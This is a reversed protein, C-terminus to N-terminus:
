HINQPPPSGRPTRPSLPSLRDQSQTKPSNTQPPDPPVAKPPLQSHSPLSIPPPSQDLSSRPAASSNATKEPDSSQHTQPASESTTPPSIFSHPLFNSFYPLVFFRFIVCLRQPRQPHASSLVSLTRLLSQTCNSRRLASFFVSLTPFSIQTRNPRLLGGKAFKAFPPAGELENSSNM